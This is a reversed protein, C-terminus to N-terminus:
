GVTRYKDITNRPEDEQHVQVYKGPQLHFVKEYDVVTGLVLQGPGKTHYLGMGPKYPPFSNFWFIATAVIHVIILKSIRMLPM